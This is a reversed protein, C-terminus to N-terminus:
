VRASNPLSLIGMSNVCSGQGRSGRQGETGAMTTIVSKIYPYEKTMRSNVRKITCTVTFM